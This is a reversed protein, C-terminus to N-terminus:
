TPRARVGVPLLIKPARCGTPGNATATRRTCRVRALRARVRVHDGDCRHRRRGAQELQPVTRLLAVGVVAAVLISVVPIGRKDVSALVSPMEEEEGLAYSLRATTGVYVIGTGAPSVVADIILVTALWGAGVALALTYWAGYDSPDGGLPSDWNKAM